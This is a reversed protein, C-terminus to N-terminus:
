ALRSVQIGCMVETWALVAFGYAFLGAAVGALLWRAPDAYGAKRWAAIDKRVAPVRAAILPASAVAFALEVEWAALTVIHIAIVAWAAWTLRRQWTKWHGGLLRQSVRNSIVALPVLIVIILTGTWERVTGAAAMGAQERTRVGLEAVALGAAGTFFVCLGLWRRWSAASPFRALWSVPTIALCALLSLTAGLGLIVGAYDALHAIRFTSARAIVLVPLLPVVALCYAAAKGATRSIGGPAARAPTRAHAPATM